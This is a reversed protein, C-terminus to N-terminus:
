LDMTLGDLIDSTGVSHNEPSVRSLTKHQAAFVNLGGGDEKKEVPSYVTIHSWIARMHKTALLQAGPM